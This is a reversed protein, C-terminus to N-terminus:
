ELKIAIGSTSIIEKLIRILEGAPIVPNGVVAMMTGGEPKEISVASLMVLFGAKAMIKDFDSCMDHALNLRKRMGDSIVGVPLRDTM